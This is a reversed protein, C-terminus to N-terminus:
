EHEASPKGRALVMIHGRWVTGTSLLLLPLGWLRHRKVATM